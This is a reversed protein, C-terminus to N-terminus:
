SEGGRNQRDIYWRIIAPARTFIFHLGLLFFVYGWFGALAEGGSMEGTLIGLIMLSAFLNATVLVTILIRLRMAGTVEQSALWELIENMGVM